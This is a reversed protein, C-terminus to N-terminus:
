EVYANRGQFTAYFDQLKILDADYDGTPYFLPGLGCVRRSYDFYGCLIPVNAALAIYYFGSKWRVAKKRTGEPAIAMVCTQQQTFVAALQTVTDSGTKRDISIGGLWRLLVGLPWRFLERKGIWCLRLRFVFAIALGLPFDWNSTHPAAIIVCQPVNPQEGEVRWGFLMFYFRGIWYLCRQSLRSNNATVKMM